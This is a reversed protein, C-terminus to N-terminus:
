VEFRQNTTFKQTTLAISIKTVFIHIPLLGIMSEQDERFGTLSLFSLEQAHHVKKSAKPPSPWRPMYPSSTGIRSIRGIGYDM